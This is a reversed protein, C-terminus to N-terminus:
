TLGLAKLVYLRVNEKIQRETLRAVQIKHANLWHDRRKDHEQAEPKSHWYTGDCELALKMSPIYFDIFYPGMRKQFIYKVNLENLIVEVATEISTKGTQSQAASTAKIMHTRRANADVKAWRRKAAVSAKARWEISKRRGRLTKSLKAKHEKTLPIGSRTKRYKELVEPRQWNRRTAAAHKKKYEDNQHLLLANERLKQRHEPLAFANGLYLHSPQLCMYNGCTNLVNMRIPIEGKTIEYVIRKPNITVQKDGDRYNLSPRDDHISGKWLWCEGTQDIKSWIREIIHKPPLAAM